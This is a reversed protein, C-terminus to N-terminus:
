LRGTGWRGGEFDFNMAPPAPSYTLLLQALVELRQDQWTDGGLFKQRELKALRVNFSNTNDM